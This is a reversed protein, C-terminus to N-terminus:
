KEEKNFSISTELFKKSKDKFDEIDNKVKLWSDVNQHAIDIVEKIKSIQSATREEIRKPKFSEITYEQFKKFM